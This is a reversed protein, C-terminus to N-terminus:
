IQYVISDYLFPRSIVKNCIREDIEAPKQPKWIPKVGVGREWASQWDSSTNQMTTIITKYRM